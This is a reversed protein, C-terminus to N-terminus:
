PTPIVVSAENSVVSENGSADVATVVYFYTQGGVVTTDTYSLSGNPTSTLLTYPGGSVSGRYVNYGVVTSTSANWTLSVSHSVVATGIGSLGVLTPSNPTNSTVSVGGSVSGAATPAFQVTFSSSAGAALSMPMTLGNMTYGTGSVGVQSISVAAGGANSLTITQTGSSGVTVNGFNLTSPSATLQPQVGTGTAVIVSPSNTANSVVSVTGAVLGLLTPSYVISLVTSQGASLTMPTTIGNTSIGLGIVVIQSITVSGTGTNTLTVSKTNNNLLNINGFAVSAPNATLTGAQAASIVLTVPISLPSNPAGTSSVIAHGSYTGAALGTMNVGIQMTATTTSTGGVVTIWSRDVTTTVPLAALPSALVTLAQAGPAPGGLQASFSLSGSLSVLSSVQPATVALTVPISVPANTTGAASVIVHGNYNGAALGSNNAGVRIASSTTGSNASLAIWAQDASITFATAVSPNAGIMVSQSSPATGGVPATFAIASMSTTLTSPTTSGTSVGTGSVSISIRPGNNRILTLKGSYVRAQAPTFMVSASFSQGGALTMPLRPGAYSFQAVSSTAGIITVSNRSTNTITVSMPASTTGVIQQPFQVSSSSSTIGAFAAVGCVLMLALIAAASFFRAKTSQEIGM